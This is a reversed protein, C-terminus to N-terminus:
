SVHKHMDRGSTINCICCTADWSCHMADWSFSVLADHGIMLMSCRLMSMSCRTAVKFDGENGKSEQECLSLPDNGEEM